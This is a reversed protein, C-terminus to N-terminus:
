TLEINASSDPGYNNVQLGFSAQGGVQVSDPVFSSAVSLDATANAPDVVTFEATLERYFFFPNRVAVHWLGRSDVTTTGAAFTATIPLSGTQPDTTVDTVQVVTSNPCEWHLRRPFSGGVAIGSVAVCVTEGVEFVTKATMCDDAYTAISPPAAQPSLVPTLTSSRNLEGASLPATIKKGPTSRNRKAREIRSASVSASLYLSGALFVILILIATLRLPLNIRYTKQTAGAVPLVDSKLSLSSAKM